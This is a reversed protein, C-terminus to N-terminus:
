RLFKFRRNIFSLVLDLNGYFTQATKHLLYVEPYRFLEIKDTNIELFSSHIQTYNANLIASYNNTICSQNVRQCCNHLLDECELLCEPDAILRFIQEGKRINTSILEILDTSVPNYKIIFNPWVSIYIKKGDQTTWQLKQIKVRSHTLVTDISYYLTRLWYGNKKLNDTDPINLKQRIDEKDIANLYNNQYDEKFSNYNIHVQLIINIPKHSYM